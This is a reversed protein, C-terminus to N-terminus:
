QYYYMLNDLESIIAECVKVSKIKKIDTNGNDHQAIIEDVEDEAVINYEYILTNALINIAEKADELELLHDAIWDGYEDEIQADDKLDAKKPPNEIKKETEKPQYNPLNVYTLPSPSTQVKPINVMNKANAVFQPMTVGDCVDILVQIDQTEYVINNQIDYIEASIKWDKNVIMFIYFFDEGEVPIPSSSVISKRYNMDTSSPTVGMRVHSHGHMRMREREVTLIWKSYEEEDTDVTVATVKQPFFVLDEILFTNASERTVMGHWQVETDFASVLTSTKLWAVPSIKLVAKHDGQLKEIPIKISFSDSSSIYGSHRSALERAYQEISVNADRIFKEISQQDAFIKKAM